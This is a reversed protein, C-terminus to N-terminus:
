TMTLNKDYLHRSFTYLELLFRLFSASLIKMVSFKVFVLVFRTFDRASRFYLWLMLVKQVVSTTDVCFKVFTASSREYPVM